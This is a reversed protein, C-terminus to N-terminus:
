NGRLVFCVCVDIDITDGKDEKSKEGNCRRRMEWGRM